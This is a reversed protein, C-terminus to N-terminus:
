YESERTIYDPVVYYKTQIRHITCKQLVEISQQHHRDAKVIAESDTALEEEWDSTNRTCIV